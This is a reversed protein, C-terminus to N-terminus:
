VWCRWDFGSCKWGDTWNLVLRGARLTGIPNSALKSSSVPGISCLLLLDLRQWSFNVLKELGIDTTSLWDHLRRQSGPEIAATTGVVGVGLLAGGGLGAVAEASLGAVLGLETATWGIAEVAGLVAFPTTVTLVVGVVSAV